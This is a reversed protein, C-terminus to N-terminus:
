DRVAGESELSLQRPPRADLPSLTSTPFVNRSLVELAALVGAALDAGSTHGIALVDALASEREAPRGAVAASVLRVVAPVAYGDMAQRLLSASLSTTSGLREAVAAALREAAPHGAAKLVLLVGCLADDGSPTLGAGAGVLGRVRGGLSHGRAAAAAVDGALERLPESVMGSWTAPAEVAAYPVVGVPRPRWTRVATVTLRPLVVRGEGVLAEDGPEVGWTLARSTEALRLGTPLLLADRALVPLVADHRDLRLYVATPFSALVRAARPPAALADATRSSGAAAVQVPRRTMM